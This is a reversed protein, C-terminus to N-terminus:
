VQRSLNTPLSVFFYLFTFVIKPYFISYTIGPKVIKKCSNKFLPITISKFHKNM